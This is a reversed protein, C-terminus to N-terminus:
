EGALRGAGRVTLEARVFQGLGPDANVHHPQRHADLVDVVQQGIQLLRQARDSTEINPSHSDSVPVGRSGARDLRRSALGQPSM